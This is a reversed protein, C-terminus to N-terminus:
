EMAALVEEYNADGEQSRAGQECGVEQERDRKVVNREGQAARMDSLDVASKCVVNARPHSRNYIEILKAIDLHLYASTSELSRHGLLDRISKIPARNHYLHTAVSHRFTHASIPMGAHELSFYKRILRWLYMPYMKNGKNNVFLYSGRNKHSWMKSYIKILVVLKKNLPVIREVKGKGVVKMQERDFDICQKRLNIIEDSRCGTYYLMELIVLDRMIKRNQEPQISDLISAIKEKALYSGRPKQFRVPPVLHCPSAINSHKRHYRYFSKLVELKRHITRPSYNMTKLHLLYERVDKRRALFLNKKFFEKFQKLDSKYATITHASYRRINKIHSLYENIESRAV